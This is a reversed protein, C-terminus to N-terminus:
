CFLFFDILFLYDIFFTFFVQFRRWLRLNAKGIPVSRALMQQLCEITQYKCFRPEDFGGIESAEHGM